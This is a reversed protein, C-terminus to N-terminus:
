RPGKVKAMERLFENVLDAFTPQQQVQKVEKEVSKIEEVLEEEEKEEEKTVPISVLKFAESLRDTLLLKRKRSVREKFELDLWDNLVPKGDYTIGYDSDRSVIIIDKGSETACHVLWEWNIADGMSTDAQKRPPYGLFFRKWALKRIKFRTKNHRGLNCTGRAAFLRQLTQYVPDNRSPNRLVREIRGKIIKIQNGITLKSAEITRVAKAESLFAPAKLTNWEPQKILSLTEQIVRQRNKKYEMEIQSGTIIRDHHAEIHKLLSLGVGGGRVRYFDLLINTDIFILADLKQQDKKPM